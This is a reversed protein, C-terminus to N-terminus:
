KACLQYNNRFLWLKVIVESESLRGPRNRRKDGNKLLEQQWVPIFKQCFDDVECFIEVLKDM